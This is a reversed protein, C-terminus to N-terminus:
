PRGEPAKAGHIRRGRRLIRAPSNMKGAWIDFGLGGGSPVNAIVPKSM